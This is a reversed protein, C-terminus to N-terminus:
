YKSLYVFVYGNNSVCPWICKCVCIKYTAPKSQTCISMCMCKHTCGHGRLRGCFRRSPMQAHKWHLASSHTHIDTTAKGVHGTLSAGRWFRRLAHPTAHAATEARSWSSISPLNYKAEDPNLRPWQLEPSATSTVVIGSANRWMSKGKSPTCNLPLNLM